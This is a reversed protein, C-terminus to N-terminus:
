SVSKKYQKLFEEIKYVERYEDSMIHILIDGLDAVIWDDSEQIALFEEGLPKLENKLYDLLAYGHKNNISNVLVVFDVFYDNEKMDVIEINEGKKEDLIRSIIEVRKDM